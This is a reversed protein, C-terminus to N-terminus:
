LVLIIPSGYLSFFRHSYTLGNEDLVPVDRVSPRVSPCFQLILILFRCVSPCLLVTQLLGTYSDLRTNYIRLCLLLWNILYSLVYFVFWRVCMFYRVTFM